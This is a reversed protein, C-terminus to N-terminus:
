PGSEPLNKVSKLYKKGTFFDKLKAIDEEDGAYVLKFSIKDPDDQDPLTTIIEGFSETGHFIDPLDTAFSELDLAVTTQIISNKSEFNELLRFLEWENLFELFEPDFGKDELKRVLDEIAAAKSM